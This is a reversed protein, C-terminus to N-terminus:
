NETCFISYSWLPPVSLGGPPLQCPTSSLLSQLSTFSHKNPATVGLQRWSTSTPIPSNFPPSFALLMRLLAALTLLPISILVQLTQLFYSSHLHITQFNPWAQIPCLRHKMHYAKSNSREEPHPQSAPPNTLDRWSPKKLQSFSCPETPVPPVFGLYSTTVTAWTSLHPCKRWFLALISLVPLSSFCKPPLM